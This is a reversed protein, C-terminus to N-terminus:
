RSIPNTEPASTVCDLWESLATEHRAEAERLYRLQKAYTRKAYKRGAVALRILLKAGQAREPQTLPEWLVGDELFREFVRDREPQLRLQDDGQTLAEFAAKRVHAIQAEARALRMALAAVRDVAEPDVGVEGAAECIARYYTLVAENSATVTLGHTVANRSSAAKGEASRPGTSKRANRRNAEIQAQTAM